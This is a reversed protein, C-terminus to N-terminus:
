GLRWSPASSSAAKRHAQAQLERPFHAFPTGRSAAKIWVAQAIKAIVSERVAELATSDSVFVAICLKRGDPLTIIGMDNTAHTLSNDTGSTGTKHAVALASPLLGKLRHPGTPSEMIWRMLLETHAANIPSHRALKDLLLVMAAPQADNRYQATVDRGLTKETDAIHLGAISLRCMPM